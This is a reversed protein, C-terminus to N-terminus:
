RKLDTLLKQLNATSKELIATEWKHRVRTLKKDFENVLMSYENEPLPVFRDYVTNSITLEKRELKLFLKRTPIHIYSIEMRRDVLLIADKDYIANKFIEIGLLQKTNLKSKSQNILWNKHYILYRLYRYYFWRNIKKM